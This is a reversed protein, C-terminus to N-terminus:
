KEKASFGEFSLIHLYCHSGSERERANLWRKAAVRARIFHDKNRGPRLRIRHFLRERIFGAVVQRTNPNIDERAPKIEDFWLVYLATAKNPSLM